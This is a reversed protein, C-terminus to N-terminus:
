ARASTGTEAQAVMSPHARDISAAVVGASGACAGTSLAAEGADGPGAAHAGVVPLAGLGEPEDGENREAHGDSLRIVNVGLRAVHRATPENEIGVAVLARDHQHAVAM